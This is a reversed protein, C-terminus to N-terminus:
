APTRGAVIAKLFRAVAVEDQKFWSISSPDKTKTYIYQIAPVLGLMLVLASLSWLFIKFNLPLRLQTVSNLGFGILIIWFPIALLLRHEVLPGASVFVGVVPITALLVIEFRKRWLALAFGPVLLWYYPLTIPLADPIFLRPGPITFFSTWLHRLYYTIDN